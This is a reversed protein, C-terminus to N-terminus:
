RYIKQETFVTFRYFDIYYLEQFIPLNQGCIGKSSYLESCFNTKNKLNAKSCLKVYTDAYQVTQFHFYAKDLSCTVKIAPM